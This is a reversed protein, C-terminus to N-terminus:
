MGHHMPERGAGNELAPEEKPATDDAEVMFHVPASRQKEFVLTGPVM